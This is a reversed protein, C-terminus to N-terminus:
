PNNVKSILWFDDSMSKNQIVGYPMYFYGNDGWEKGWSNKAIFYGVKRGTFNNNYGVLVVAHGGLYAERKTNPYLMMGTEEIIKYEFSDYVDFGVIVPYGSALANKVSDFDICKEYGTVKRKAADIYADESPRIAYKTEDYPWISELPAGYTYVSKIGSRIYAGDDQNVTGEYLRSQYYIFLRSIETIKGNKKNTLEIAEAIAQGTCSGINGQDEVPTAFERLDVVEPLEIDAKKYIHDRPDPKDRRWQYKKNLLM